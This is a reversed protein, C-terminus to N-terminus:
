LQRRNQQTHRAARKRMAYVERTHGWSMNFHTNCDHSMDHASICAWRKPEPKAALWDQCSVVTDADDSESTEDWYSENDTNTEDWQECMEKLEDTAPMQSGAYVEFQIKYPEDNGYLTVGSTDAADANHTSAYATLCGLAISGQEGGVAAAPIAGTAVERAGTYDATTPLPDRSPTDAVAHQEGPKYVIEFDYPALQLAWKAYQGELIKANRLWTL